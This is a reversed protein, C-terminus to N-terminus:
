GINFPRDNEIYIDTVPTYDIAVDGKWGIYVYYDDGVNMYTGHAGTLRCWVIKRLCLKLIYGVDEISYLMHEGSKITNYWFREEVSLREIDDDSNYDELM